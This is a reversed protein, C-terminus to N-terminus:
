SGAALLCAREILGELERVNGPWAHAVLAKEARATLRPRENPRRWKKQLFADALLLIDGPRERLPPVTLEVVKLRFYLDQRFRRERIMADLDQHTAAVVRVDVKEVKDSGVRMIEGFQLFRLLKAQAEAPIEGVEDLFLTGGDAQAIRGARDREAGTFAGRIHGFLESELLSAPLASCHLIVFPRRRRGSNVHLARAILEKGTGTEGRVLVTAESDAVQAVVRLLELMHPDRTVIG